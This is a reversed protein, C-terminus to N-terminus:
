PKIIEWAEIEGDTLNFLSHQRADQTIIITHHRVDRVEAKALLHQWEYALQGTTLPLSACQKYPLLKTRDFTYGRADAEDAISHLYNNIAQLPDNCARFRNLQPHHRYGKTNGELVKKALLGERWVAVLAIRDLQSPHVSWLRM